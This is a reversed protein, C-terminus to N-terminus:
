SGMGEFLKVQTGFCSGVCSPYCSLCYMRGGSRTSMLSHRDDCGACPKCSILSSVGFRSRYGHEHRVCAEAGQHHAGLYDSQLITIDLV